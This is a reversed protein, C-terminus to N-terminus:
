GVLAGQPVGGQVVVSVVVVIGFLVTLVGVLESLGLAEDGGGGVWVSRRGPKVEAAVPAVLNVREGVGSLPAEEALVVVDSTGITGLELSKVAFLHALSPLALDRVVKIGMSGPVLLIKSMQM